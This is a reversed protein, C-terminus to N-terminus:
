GTLDDPQHGQGLSPDVLIDRLLGPENVILISRRSYGLHCVDRRYAEAPLLSLLNGDGSRVLGPDAGGSRAPAAAAAPLVAQGRRHPGNRNIWTLLRGRHSGISPM